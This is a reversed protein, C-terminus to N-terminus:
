GGRLGHSVLTPMGLGPIRIRTRCAPPVELLLLRAAPIGLLEGVVVRIVGGHTVTLVRQAETGLVSTWGALVRERFAAFPM